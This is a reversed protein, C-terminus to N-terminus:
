RPNIGCNWLELNNPIRCKSNTIQFRGALAHADLQLLGGAALGGLLSVTSSMTSSLMTPSISFSPQM